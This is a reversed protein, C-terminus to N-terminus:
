TVSNSKYATIVGEGPLNLRGLKESTIQFVDKSGKSIKFQDEASVVPIKTNNIDTFGSETLLHVLDGTTYRKTEYTFLDSKLKELHDIIKKTFIAESSVADLLAEGYQSPLKASEMLLEQHIESTSSSSDLVLVTRIERNPKEQRITHVLLLVLQQNKNIGQILSITEIHPASLNWIQHIFRLFGGTKLVRFIEQSVQRVDQAEELAFAAVVGDITNAQIPITKIDAALLDVNTLGSASLNQRSQAIRQESAEIALVHSKQRIDALPLSPWGDGTGLDIITAKQNLAINAALSEIVSAQLM